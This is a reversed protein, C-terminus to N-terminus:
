LARELAPPVVAAARSLLRDLEAHDDATLPAVPHRCVATGMAGRRRLIEKRVGVGGRLEHKNLPLYADFLDEAEDVRGEAHLRCVAVLVDPFAFGTMAGDAGRTLEQPLAIGNNGALITVRRLGAAEAARIRSLKNLGPDEEHKLMVVSPCDGVIRHWAPVTLTVGSAKPFDQFCVPVDAGLAECVTRFYGVVADDGALGALPQVLVGAAGAAMAHHATATLRELSSDSIGVLVPVRGGVAALATEAVLRSETETFRNAEGMVGLLTIGSVGCEVYFDMLRAISGVDVAGDADLPTVAVVTLGGEPLAPATV